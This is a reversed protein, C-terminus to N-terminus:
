ETNLQSANDQIKELYESGSISRGYLKWMRVGLRIANQDLHDDLRRIAVIPNFQKMSEWFRKIGEDTVTGSRYQEYGGGSFIVKEWIYFSRMIYGYHINGFIDHGYRLNTEPDYFESQGGFRKLILPKLDWEGGM